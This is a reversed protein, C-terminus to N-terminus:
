PHVQKRRNTAESSFRARPQTTKGEHKLRELAKEEPALSSNLLENFV